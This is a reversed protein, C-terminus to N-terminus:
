FSLRRTSSKEQGLWRSGIFGVLISSLYSGWQFVASKVELTSAGRVLGVWLEHFDAAAVAITGPLSVMNLPGPYVYLKQLSSKSRFMLVKTGLLGRVEPHSEHVDIVREFVYTDPEVSPHRAVQRSSKDKNRFLTLKATKNPSSFQLLLNTIM